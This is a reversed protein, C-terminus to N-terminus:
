TINSLIKFNKGKKLYQAKNFKRIVLIHYINVNFNYNLNINFNNSLNKIEKLLILNLNLIKNFKIIKSNWLIIKSEQYILKIV